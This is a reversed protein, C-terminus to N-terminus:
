GWAIQLVGPVQALNAVVKSPLEFRQGRNLKLKSTLTKQRKELDYDLRM